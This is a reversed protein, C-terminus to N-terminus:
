RGELNKRGRRMYADLAQQASEFRHSRIWAETRSSPIPEITWTGSRSMCYSGCRVAWLRVGERNVVRVAQVDGPRAYVGAGPFWYSGITLEETNM